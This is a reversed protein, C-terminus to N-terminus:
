KLIMSVWNSEITPGDVVEGEFWNKFVYMDLDDLFSEMQILIDTLSASDSLRKIFDVPM